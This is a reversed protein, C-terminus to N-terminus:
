KKNTNCRICYEEHQDSNRYNNVLAVIQRNNCQREALNNLIQYINEIDSLVGASEM